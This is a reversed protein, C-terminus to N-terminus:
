RHDRTGDFARAYVKFSLGGLVDGPRLVDTGAFAGISAWPTVFYDVGGRAEVSAFEDELGDFPAPAGHTSLVLAGYAWRTDARVYLHGLRYALGVVAGFSIAFSSDVGAGGWGAPGSFGATAGGGIELQLGLEVLDFARVLLGPRATAAYLTGRFAGRTLADGCTGGTCPRLADTSLSFIRLASDVVFSVPAAGEADWSGFCTQAWGAPLDPSTPPCRSRAHLGAERGFFAFAAIGFAVARKLSQM